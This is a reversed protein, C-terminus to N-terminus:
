PPISDKDTIVLLGDRVFYDLGNPRLIKRLAVKLPEHEVDIKVKRGLTVDAAQLGEPDFYIALGAPLEPGKTSEGIHASIEDLAIGSPFQLPIVRDLQGNVSRNAQWTNYRVRWAPLNYWVVLAILPISFMLTSLRWRLKLSM